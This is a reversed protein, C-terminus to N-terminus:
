RKQQSGANACAATIWNSVPQSGSSWSVNGTWQNGSGSNSTDGTGGADPSTGGNNWDGHRGRGPYAHAQNWSQYDFNTPTGAGTGPWGSGGQSNQEARASWLSTTRQNACLGRRALLSLACQAQAYTVEEALLEGNTVQGNVMGQVWCNRQNAPTSGLIEQFVGFQTTTQASGASQAPGGVVAAPDPSAAADQADARGPTGLTLMGTAAVVVTLTRLM